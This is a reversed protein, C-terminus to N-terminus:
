VLILSYIGYGMCFVLFAIVGVLLLRWVVGFLFSAFSNNEKKAPVFPMAMIMLIVLLWLWGDDKKNYM